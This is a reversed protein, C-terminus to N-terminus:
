KKEDTTSEMCSASEEKEEDDEQEDESGEGYQRSEGSRLLQTPFRRLIARLRSRLDPSRERAHVTCHFDEPPLESHLANMLDVNREWVVAANGDPLRDVARSVEEERLIHFTPYPSRNTYNECNEQYQQFCFLPHFPVVQLIDKWDNKELVEDMAAGVDLHREFSDPFCHPCVILTTGENKTLYEMERYATDMLAFNDTEVVIKLKQDVLPKKAFPCLNLGIVVRRLWALTETRYVSTDDEEKEQVVAQISTLSKERTAIFCRRGAKRRVYNESHLRKTFSPIPAKSFATSFLCTTRASRGAKRSLVRFSSSVSMHNNYPLALFLVKTLGVM